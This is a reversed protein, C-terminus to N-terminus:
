NLLGLFKQYEFVSHTRVRVGNESKVASGNGKGLYDFTAFLVLM